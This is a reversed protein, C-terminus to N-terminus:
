HAWLVLGAALLACSCAILVVGVLRVSRKVRRDDWPEASPDVEFMSQFGLGVSRRLGRANATSRVQWRITISPLFLDLFGFLLSCLSGAILALAVPRV